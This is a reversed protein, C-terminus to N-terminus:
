ESWSRGRNFADTVLVEVKEIIKGGITGSHFGCEDIIGRQYAIVDRVLKELQAIESKDLRMGWHIDM